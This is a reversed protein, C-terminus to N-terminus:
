IFKWPPPHSPPHTAPNNPFLALRLELKLQLQLKLQAQCYWGLPSPPVREGGAVGCRRCFGFHGGPPGLHGVPDSFTQLNKPTRLLKWLKKIRASRRHSFTPISSFFVHPPPRSFFFFLIIFITAVLTTALRVSQFASRQYWNVLFMLMNPKIPQCYPFNNHGGHIIKKDHPNYIFNQVAQSCQDPGQSIVLCSYM